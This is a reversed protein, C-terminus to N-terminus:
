QKIDFDIPQDYFNKGNIIVNYNDIIGKPFFYYNYDKLTFIASNSNADYNENGLVFLVCHKTWKLKLEVKCNILPM